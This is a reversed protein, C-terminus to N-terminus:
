GGSLTVECQLLVRTGVTATIEAQALHGHRGLLKAQFTVTEGPQATGLIKAARVATLRLERSPAHTPETQVIIGALQAGAEIMLVGPFIPNGPFHGRLFTEDGRIHYEGIASRGPELTILRDLFRFEPGHPLSRLAADLTASDYNRQDGSGTM